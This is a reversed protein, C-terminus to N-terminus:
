SRLYAILLLLVLRSFAFPACSFCLNAKGKLSSIIKRILNMDLIYIVIFFIGSLPQPFGTFTAIMKSGTTRSPQTSKLSKLVPMRSNSSLFSNKIPCITHVFEFSTLM